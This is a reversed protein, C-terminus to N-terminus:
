QYARLTISIRRGVDRARHPVEHTWQQNTQFPIVFVAGNEAPFDIMESGKWPRLRFVREEGLSITVIPAGVVMDTTRDRHPGIYHAKSGDYFNVLVGNLRADIASHTWDFLPELMPPIPSAKRTRRTYHSDMGFALQWRPIKVMKGHMPIANFEDPHLRWLAEFPIGALIKKPVKGRLVVHTEDLREATLEGGASPAGSGAGCRLSASQPPTARWNPLNPM